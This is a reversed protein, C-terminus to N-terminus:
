NHIPYDSPWLIDWYGRPYQTNASDLIRACPWLNCRATEIVNEGGHLLLLTHDICAIAKAGGVNRHDNHSESGSEEEHSHGIEEELNDREINEEAVRVIAGERGEKGHHAEDKNNLKLHTKQSKITSQSSVFM